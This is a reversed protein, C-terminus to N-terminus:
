YRPAPAIMQLLLNVFVRQDSAIFFASLGAFFAAYRVAFVEDQELAQLGM